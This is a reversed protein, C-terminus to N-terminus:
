VVLGAHGSVRRREEGAMNALERQGINNVIM